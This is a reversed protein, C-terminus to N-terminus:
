YAIRPISDPMRSLLEYNLENTIESFSAISIKQDGEEGILIVEDGCKPSLVLSLDISMSKMNLTGWGFMAGKFHHTFLGFDEGCKM